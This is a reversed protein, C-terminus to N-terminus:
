KAKHPKFIWGIFWSLGTFALGLILVLIILITEM